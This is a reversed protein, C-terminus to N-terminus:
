GKKYDKLVTLSPVIQGISELAGYLLMKEHEYADMDESKPDQGAYDSATISLVNCLYDVAKKL